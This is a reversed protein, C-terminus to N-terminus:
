NVEPRNRLARRERRIGLGVFAVAALIGALPGIGGRRPETGRRAAVPGGAPPPRGPLAAIDTSVLTGRVVETDSEQRALPEVRRQPAPQRDSPAPTADPTQPATFPSGPAAPTPSAAAGTSTPGEAPGQAPARRRDGRGGGTDGASEPPDGVTLRLPTSSGGSDDSGTVTVVAEYVGPTAYAHRVAPGRKRTGDGLSWVFTLEHGPAAGGLVEASLHVPRGAPVTRRDATARVTLLRGQHARIVLDGETIGINDAANADDPGRLPRLYRIEGADIWVIPPGEPFPPPDALDGARLLSLSGNPRTLSVFSVTEPSGGALTV